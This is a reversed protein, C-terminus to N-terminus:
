GSLGPLLTRLAPGIQYGAGAASAEVEQLPRGASAEGAAWAIISRTGSRCFALAPGGAEELAARMDAVEDPRPQGAIPIHLYRLGASDAAARMEDASPQEPAEGDPRNNILLVFRRALAAVEDPFLQPAVAFAPTVERVEAM